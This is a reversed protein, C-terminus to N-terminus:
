SFLGKFFGFLGGVEIGGINLSMTKTTTVVSGDEKVKRSTEVHPGAGIQGISPLGGNVQSKQEEDRAWDKWQQDADAFCPNCLMGDSWYNLDSENFGDQGCKACRLGNEVGVQTKYSAFLQKLEGGDLWVGSCSPCADIDVGFVHVANMATQCRVCALDGAQGPATALAALPTHAGMTAEIESEDFWMGGCSTCEDMTVQLQRGDHGTMKGPYTKQSLATHCVPCQNTM